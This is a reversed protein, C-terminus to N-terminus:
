FGASRFESTYLAGEFFNAFLFGSALFSKGDESIYSFRYRLPRTDVAGGSHAHAEFYFSAVERSSTDANSPSHEIDTDSDTHNSQTITFSSIVPGAFVQVQATATGALNTSRNTASLHFM